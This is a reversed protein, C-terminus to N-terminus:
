INIECNNYIQEALPIIKQSLAAMDKMSEKMAAADEAAIATELEAIEKELETALEELELIAAKEEPCTFKLTKVLLQVKDLLEKATALAESSIMNIAEKISERLVDKNDKLYQLIAQNLAKIEEISTTQALEEQYKILTAEANELPELIKAKQADDLQDNNSIKTKTAAIRALSKDVMSNLTSKLKDYDIGDTNELKDTIKDKLTGDGLVMAKLPTIISLNALGFILILIILKKTNM